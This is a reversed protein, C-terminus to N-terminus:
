KRMTAGVLRRFQPNSDWTRALAQMILAARDPTCEGGAVAAVVHIKALAYHLVLEQYQEWVGRDEECPFLQKLVLNVLFNEFFRPHHKLLEGALRKEARGMAASLARGGTTSAAGFTQRVQALCEHYRRPLVLELLEFGCLCKLIKELLQDSIAQPRKAFWSEKRTAIAKLRAEILDPKHQEILTQLEHSFEGLRSLRTEFALKQNQLIGVALARLTAFHAIHARPGAAKSTDIERHFLHPWRDPMGFSEFRLPEQSLLVVRALAPCAIAASRERCGDVINEERPYRHCLCPLYEPGARKQLVCLRDSEFFACYYDGLAKFRAACVPSAKAPAELRMNAALLDRLMSDPCAHMRELTDQDVRIDWGHCCTDECAAATCEFHKLYNLSRIAQETM